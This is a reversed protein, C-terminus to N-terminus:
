NTDSPILQIGSSNEAWVVMVSCHFAIGYCIGTQTGSNVATGFVAKGTQGICDM